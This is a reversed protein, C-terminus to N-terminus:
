GFRDPRAHGSRCALQLLAGRMMGPSTDPFARTDDVFGALNYIGATEVVADLYREMGLVSDLVVVTCRAAARTIVLWHRWSGPTRRRM